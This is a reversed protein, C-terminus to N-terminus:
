PFATKAVRLVYAPDIGYVYTDDVFFRRPGYLRSSSLTLVSPTQSAGGALSIRAIGTTALETSTGNQCNDCQTQQVEVIAFYANTADAALGMCLSSSQFILNGNNWVDCGGNTFGCTNGSCGSTGQLASWVVGSSNVALGIGTGSAITSIKTTTSLDRPASWVAGGGIWYVNAADATFLHASDTTDFSASQPTVGGDEFDIRYLNGTPNNGSNGGFDFGGTDSSTGNSGAAIAVIAARTDAAVGVVLGSISPLTVVGADDGNSALAHVVVSGADLDDHAFYVTSGDNTVGVGASMANLTANVKPTSEIVTVGGDGGFSAVAVEANMNATNGNCGQTGPCLSYERTLWVVGNALSAGETNESACNGDTDCSKDALAFVGEISSGGV